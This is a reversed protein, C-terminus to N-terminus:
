ARSPSKKAYSLGLGAVLLSGLVIMVNTSAEGGAGTAPLGPTAPPVYPPVVTGRISVVAPLGTTAGTAVVNSTNMSVTYGGGNVLNTGINCRLALTTVTNASLVLASQLQVNNMGSSFNSMTTSTASLGVTPDSENFVQCNELTSSMAGNSLSLNYPLSSIRVAETSGTTDLVLRALVASQLGSTLPSSLGTSGLQIALRPAAMQANASGISGAALMGLALPLVLLKKITM